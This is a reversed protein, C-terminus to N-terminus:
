RKLYGLFVTNPEKKDMGYTELMFFVNLFLLLIRSGVVIAIKVVSECCLLLLLAMLLLSTQLLIQAFM